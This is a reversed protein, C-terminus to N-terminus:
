SHHNTSNTKRGRRVLQSLVMIYRLLLRLAGHLLLAAWLGLLAMRWYTPHTTKGEQMRSHLYTTIQETEPLNATSIKDVIKGSRLLLLTPNGRGITKITTADATLFPYSAGTQYQWWEMASKSGDSVGYFNYGLSRSQRYLENIQDIHGQDARELNASLLLIVGMSDSLINETLNEGDAGLLDLSYRSSELETPALSEVKVFSWSSDPLSDPSFSGQEGNREYIYRSAELLRTQRESQEMAIAQALDLGRPYPRLDIIPLYKVNAHIFTTIGFVALVMPIWRERRTYLYHIGRAHRMVWYSLPLLLLNKIVTETNSLRIADGFCGCDTIAGTVLTYVTLLTMLLMTLFILRSCLRRYIGMLLFSGLLFEIACMGYALWVMGTEYEALFGLGFARVYEGLKLSVGIPDIAKLLGSAVFVGGLIVRAVELVYRSYSKM